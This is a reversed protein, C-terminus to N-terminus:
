VVRKWTTTRAPCIYCLSHPPVVSAETRELSTGHEVGNLRPRSVGCGATGGIAGALRSPTEVRECPFDQLGPRLFLEGSASCLFACSDFFGFDRKDIDDTSKLHKHHQPPLRFFTLTYEITEEM